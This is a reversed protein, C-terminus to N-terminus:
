WDQQDRRDLHQYRNFELGALTTQAAGAGFAYGLFQGAGDLLLGLMLVPLLRVWSPQDNGGCRHQRVLRWLRVAPILPAGGTFFFRRGLSWNQLQARRAAFVRGGHFQARMWPVVRSFNVHAVLAQPELWLRHGMRRLDWHLVTEAELMEDLAPGYHLLIDRKYSSNHGPLFDREGPAHVSMWPGYGILFDAWAVVSRPNGNAVMPGVAAWSDRHAAILAAAWNPEPFAHDEALAVIAASAQRVGAANARGISDIRGLEVLRFGGFENLESGLPGLRSASSVVVVIELRERVTQARLFGITKRITGYDGPTAIVVSMEPTQSSVM